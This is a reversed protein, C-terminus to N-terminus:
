SVTGRRQWSESLCDRNLIVDRKRVVLNDTQRLPYVHDRSSQTSSKHFGNQYYDMVWKSYVQEGKSRTTLQKFNRV